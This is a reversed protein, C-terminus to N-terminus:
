EKDGRRLGYRREFAEVRELLEHREADCAHVREDLERIAAKLRTIEERLLGVVARWSDDATAERGDQRRLSRLWVLAAALLGGGGVTVAAAKEPDIDM